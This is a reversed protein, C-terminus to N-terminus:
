KMTPGIRRTLETIENGFSQIPKGAIVGRAIDEIRKILAPDSTVLVKTIRTDAKKIKQAVQKKVANTEKGTVGSQLTIGVMAAYTNNAPQVVVTASKVGKVQVALNTLKDALRRSASVNTTTIPKKAPQTVTNRNNNNTTTNTRPVVKKAPQQACGGIALPSVILVFILLSILRQQM